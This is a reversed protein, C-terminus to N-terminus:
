SIMNVHLPWIQTLGACSKCSDHVDMHHIGCSLTICWERHNLGMNCTNFYHPQGQIFCVISRGENIDTVGAVVCGCNLFLVKKKWMSVTLRHCLPKGCHDRGQPTALMLRRWIAVTSFIACFLPTVVESWAAHVADLKQESPASSHQCSILESNQCNSFSLPLTNDPLRLFEAVWLSLM